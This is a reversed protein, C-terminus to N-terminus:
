ISIESDKFTNFKNVKLARLWLFVAYIFLLVIIIYNYFASDNNQGLMIISNNLGHFVITVVISQRNVILLSLVIGIIFAYTIQLITAELSQGGLLQLSHTIAFLLSSVLVALKFGKAKLIELMFGRFFFEEIFAVVIIQTGIIMLLRSISSTDIGNNGILLLALILLLPSSLLTSKLPILKDKHFYASWKKTKLLYFYVGVALPVLGVYQLFVNSPNTFTVYAGNVTFFLIILFELGLIKLFLKM